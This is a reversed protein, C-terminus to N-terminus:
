RAETSVINPIVPHDIEAPSSRSGHGAPTARYEGREDVEQVAQGAPLVRMGHVFVISGGLSAGLVLLAFGFLTLGFGVGSMGGKDDGLAGMLAAVTMIGVAGMVTRMHRTTQRRLTTGSRIRRRDLFGTFATPIAAVSGSALALWWATVTGPTLIGAAALLGALTAFAYAGIM